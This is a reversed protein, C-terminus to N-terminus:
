SRITLASFNILESGLNGAEDKVIWDDKRLMVRGAISEIVPNVVPVGASTLEAGPVLENPTFQEADFEGERRVYTAL